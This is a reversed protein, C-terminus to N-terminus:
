RTERRAFSRGREFAEQVEKNKRALEENKTAALAQLKEIHERELSATAARVASEIEEKSSSATAVAKRGDDQGRRYIEELLARLELHCPEVNPDGDEFMGLLVPYKVWDVKFEDIM